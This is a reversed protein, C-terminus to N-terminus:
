GRYEEAAESFGALVHFVCLLHGRTGRAKIALPAPSWQVAVIPFGTRPLSSGKPCQVFLLSSGDGAKM